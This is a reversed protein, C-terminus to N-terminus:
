REPSESLNASVAVSSNTLLNRPQRNLHRLAYKCQVAGSFNQIRGSIEDLGRHDAAGPRSCLCDVRRQERYGINISRYLWPCGQGLFLRSLNDFAQGPHGLIRREGCRGTGKSVDVRLSNTLATGSVPQTTDLTISGVGGNEQVLTWHVPTSPDDKLVRNQVLEGYIGGDYSHNIEETMLGYFKPNIHAGPHFGDVDLTAPQVPQPGPLSPDGIRAIALIQDPTLAAQYLRVDDISGNVWDVYSNNYQGNGIGTHGNAPSPSVSYVQGALVGNVYISASRQTADYVGTVHYWTGVTPTMGSDPYVAVGPGGAAGFPQTFTFTNTDGRKQLFFTAQFGSDESVFTQFGGLSNLKVWAAVTFSKTTDVVDRPIDAYAGAAGTLNLAAPGVLGTTWGAGGLLTADNNNGSTDHGVTGSGEDFTLYAAPTPTQARVAVTNTLLLFTPALLSLPRVHTRLASPLSIRIRM